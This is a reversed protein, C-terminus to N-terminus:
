ILLRYSLQALGIHHDTRERRPTAGCHAEDALEVSWLRLQEIL